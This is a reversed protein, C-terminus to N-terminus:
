LLIHMDTVNGYNRSNDVSVLFEDRLDVRVHNDVCELLSLDVAVFVPM